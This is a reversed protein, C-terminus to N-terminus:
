IPQPLRLHNQRLFICDGQYNKPQVVILSVRGWKPIREARNSHQCENTFRM